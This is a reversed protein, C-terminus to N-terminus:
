SILVCGKEGRGGHLLAYTGFALGALGTLILLIGFASM